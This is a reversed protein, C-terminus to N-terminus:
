GASGSLYEKWANNVESRLEFVTLSKRNLLHLFGRRKVESNLVVILTALQIEWVKKVQKKYGPM